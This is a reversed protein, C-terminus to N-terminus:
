SCEQRQHRQMYERLQRFSSKVQNWNNLKVGVSFNEVITSFQEDGGINALQQGIRRLQDRRTRDRRLDVNQPMASEIQQLQGVFGALDRCYESGGVETEEVTDDSDEGVDTVVTEEPMDDQTPTPPRPPTPRNPNPRNDNDAVPAPAAGVALEYIPDQFSSGGGIRRGAARMIRDWSAAQQGNIESRLAKLFEVTFAGGETLAYSYQGPKSSTAFLRGRAELFLKRYNQPNPENFARFNMTPAAGRDIYSNCADAMAMTFRANKATLETLIQSYDVGGSGPIALMPWNTPTASRRFGHGSYYFLIM